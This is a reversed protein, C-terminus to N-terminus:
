SELLYHGLNDLWDWDVLEVSKDSASNGTVIWYPLWWTIMGALTYVVALPVIVVFLLALALRRLPYPM